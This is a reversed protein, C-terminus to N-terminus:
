MGLIHEIKDGLEVNDLKQYKYENAEEITEFLKDSIKYAEVKKIEM